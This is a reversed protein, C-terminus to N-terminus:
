WIIILKQKQSFSISSCLILILLEEQISFLSKMFLFYLIFLYYKKNENPRNARNVDSM